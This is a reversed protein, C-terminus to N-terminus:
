QVVPVQKQLKQRYDLRPCKYFWVFFQHYAKIDIEIGDLKNQGLVIDEELIVKRFLSRYEVKNEESKFINKLWWKYMEKLELDGYDLSLVYKDFLDFNYNQYTYVKNPGLYAFDCKRTFQFLKDDAKLVSQGKLFSKFLEAKDSVFDLDKLTSLPRGLINEFLYNFIHKKSDLGAMYDKIMCVVDGFPDKDIEFVFYLHKKILPILEQYLVGEKKFHDSPAENWKIDKYMLLPLFINVPFMVCTNKEAIFVLDPKDQFKQLYFLVQQLVAAINERYLFTCDAKAELLIRYGDKMTFLGDCQHTKSWEGEFCDRIENRYVTEILSENDGAAEIQKIMQKNM